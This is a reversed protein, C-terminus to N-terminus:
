SPPWLKRIYPNNTISNHDDFIFPGNFSSRYAGLGVAVLLCPALIQPNLWSSGKAVKPSEASRRPVIETRSAPTTETPAIM